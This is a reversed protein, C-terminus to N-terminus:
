GNRSLRKYKEIISHPLQQKFRERVENINAIIEHTTTNFEKSLDIVSINFKSYCEIFCKYDYDNLTNIFNHLIEAEDSTLNDCFLFEDLYM